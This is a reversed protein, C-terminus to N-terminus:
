DPVSYRNRLDITVLRDNRISVCTLLQNRNVFLRWTSRVILCDVHDVLGLSALSDDIINVFVVVHNSRLRYRAVNIRHNWNFQVQRFVPLQGVLVILRVANLDLGGTLWNVNQNNMPQNLFCWLQALNRPRDVKSIRQILIGYRRDYLRGGKFPCNVM